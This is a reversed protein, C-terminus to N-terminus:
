EGFARHMPWATYPLLRVMYPTPASNSTALPDLARYAGIQTLIIYCCLALRVYRVLAYYMRRSMANGYPPALPFQISLFFGPSNSLKASPSWCRVSASEAMNVGM